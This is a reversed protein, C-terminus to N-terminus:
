TNNSKLKILTLNLFLTILLGLSPDLSWLNFVWSLYTWTGEYFHLVFDIVVFIRCRCPLDDARCWWAKGLGLLYFSHAYPSFYSYYFFCVAGGKPLVDKRQDLHVNGYPEQPKNLHLKWFRSINRCYKKELSFCHKESLSELCVVDKLGQELPGTMKVNVMSVLLTDSLTSPERKSIINKISNSM